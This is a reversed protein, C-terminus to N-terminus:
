NNRRNGNDYYIYRKSRHATDYKFIFGERKVVSTCARTTAQIGVGLIESLQKSTYLKGPNTM